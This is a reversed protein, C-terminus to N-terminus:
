TKLGNSGTTVPKRTLRAPRRLKQDLNNYPRTSAHLPVPRMAPERKERDFRDPGPGTKVVMSEAYESVVDENDDVVNRTVEEQMETGATPVEDESPANDETDEESHFSYESDEIDSKNVDDDADVDVDVDAAANVDADGCAHGVADAAADVDADADAHGIADAIQEEDVLLKGFVSAHEPSDPLNDEVDEGEDVDINAANQLGDGCDVGIQTTGKVYVNINRSGGVSKAMKIVDLDNRMEVMRVGEGTTERWWFSCRIVDLKMERAMQLLELRSIFDADCFDVYGGFRAENLSLFEGLGYYMHITFYEAIPLYEPAEENGCRVRWSGDM